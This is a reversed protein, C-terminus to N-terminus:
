ISYMLLVKMQLVTEIKRDYPLGTTWVPVFLISKVRLFILHAWVFDLRKSHM